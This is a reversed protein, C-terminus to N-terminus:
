EATEQVVEKVEQAAQELVVAIELPAAGGPVIELYFEGRKSSFFVREENEAVPKPRDEHDTAQTFEMVAGAHVDPNERVKLELGTRIAKTPATAAERNQQEVYWWRHGAPQEASRPRRQAGARWGGGESYQAPGQSRM